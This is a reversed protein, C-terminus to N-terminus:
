RSIKIYQPVTSLKMTPILAPRLSITPEGVPVPSASLLYDKLPPRLLGAM